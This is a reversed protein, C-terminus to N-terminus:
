EFMIRVQNNEKSIEEVKNLPDLRIYIAKTGQERFGTLSVQISKPLLDVPADIGELEQKFLVGHRENEVVLAFRPAKVGGLNHITIGGKDETWDYVFDPPAIALDPIQQNSVGKHTQQIEIITLKHPRLTIPISAGRNLTMQRHSTIVDIKNDGTVDTGEVIDYTGNDLNWVRMTGDLLKNALNFLMVKLSASTSKLVLKALNGGGNEWSVAHGPFLVGPSVATGGLV